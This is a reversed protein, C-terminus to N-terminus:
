NVRYYKSCFESCNDISNAGHGTVNFKLVATQAGAPMTLARANMQAEISAPNGYGFQGHWLRDIKVVNRPPTGEIFTFKVDATFGGSYGSYHIRISTSDKLYQAFDTVDFNYRHKWNWPFRQVNAYPTILRGIEFTDTPTLLFIQATYDWDGCYQPNGPCQYKGLTFTMTIDRYTTSTNPFVAPADYNGFNELQTLVHSQVMSTDGPAAKLGSLLFLFIFGLLYCLKMRSNNISYS